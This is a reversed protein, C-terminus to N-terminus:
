FELHEEAFVIDGCLEPNKALNFIEFCIYGNITREPNIIDIFSSCVLGQTSPEAIKLTNCEFIKESFAQKLLTQLEARDHKLIKFAEQNVVVQGRENTNTASVPNKSLDKYAFSKVLTQTSWETNPGTVLKVGTGLPFANKESLSRLMLFKYAIADDTTFLSEEIEGKKLRLKEPATFKLAGPAGEAPNQEDNFVSNMNLMHTKVFSEFRDYVTKFAATATEFAKNNASVEQVHEKMAKPDTSNLKSVPTISKRQVTSLANISVAKGSDTNITETKEPTTNPSDTRGSENNTPVTM